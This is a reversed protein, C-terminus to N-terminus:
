WHAQWATGDYTRLKGLTADFYTDGAVPNTPEDIAPYRKVPEDLRNIALAARRVWDVLNHTVTPIM